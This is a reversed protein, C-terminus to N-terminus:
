AAPDASILTFDNGNSLICSRGDPLHLVLSWRGNQAVHLAMRAGAGATGTARPHEGQAGLFAQVRESSGCPVGQAVAAAPLILALVMARFFRNM